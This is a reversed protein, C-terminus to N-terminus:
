AVPSGDRHYRRPVRGSIGCLVEHNITGLRRAIDEVTQREQGSRGILIAPAGVAVPHAVGLDTPGLDAPGLDATINDMSVTGVLPYRRGGILVDGNNTLGRRVGDAYGIPMTAIWTPREAIFRRGYGVSDGPETRKIAAVYSSLEMAQELGTSDPDENMPDCGYLAIGCRVMDFHSGPVRLTAASNAAHVRLRGYREQLEAAFAAFVELQAAAFALDGDATALHTMVGALELGPAAARVAQAVALAEAADRTGLRGMGSDLKVHVRIPRRAGAAAAALERVFLESWGVVEADAGLAVPLEESSVAGLVFVPATVGAARLEMAEGATAVALSTAGGALAAGAVRVAGHGSADAKVVACLEAGAALRGRLAVVNREIAALNVRALARLAM